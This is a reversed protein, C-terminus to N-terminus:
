LIRQYTGLDIKEVYNFPIMGEESGKKAKFWGSGQPEETIVM